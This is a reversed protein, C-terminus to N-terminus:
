NERGFMLSQSLSSLAPCLRKTEQMAPSLGPPHAWNSRAAMAESSHFARSPLSLASHFWSVSLLGSSSLSGPGTAGLKLELRGLGPREQWGPNLLRSSVAPAEYILGRKEGFGAQTPKESAFRQLGVMRGWRGGPWFVGRHPGADDLGGEDSLSQSLFLQALLTPVGWIRPASSLSQFGPLQRPWPSSGLQRLIPCHSSNM